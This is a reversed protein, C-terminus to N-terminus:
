LRALKLGGGGDWGHSCHLLRKAADVSSEASGKSLRMDDDEGFTADDEDTDTNGAKNLTRKGRM